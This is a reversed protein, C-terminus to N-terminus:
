PKPKQPKPNLTILPGVLIEPMIGQHLSSLRDPSTIELMGLTRNLMSPNQTINPAQFMYLLTEPVDNSNALQEM